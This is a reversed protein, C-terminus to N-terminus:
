QQLNLEFVFEDSTEGDFYDADKIFEVQKM